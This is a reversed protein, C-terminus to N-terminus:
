RFPTMIRGDAGGLRGSGLKSQPVAVAAPPSASVGQNCTVVNGFQDHCQVAVGGQPPATNSPVEVNFVQRPERPKVIRYADSDPPLSVAQGSPASAQSYSVGGTSGNGVVPSSTSQYYGATPQAVNTVVCCEDTVAYAAAPTSVVQQSYTVQPQFSTQTQSYSVSGTSGGSVKAGAVAPYNGVRAQSAKETRVCLTELAELRRFVEAFKTECNCSDSTGTKAVEAAKAVEHKADSIAEQMATMSVLKGSKIEEEVISVVGNRDLMSENM